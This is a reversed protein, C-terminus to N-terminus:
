FLGGDQMVKFFDDLDVEGHDKTSAFTLMENLEDDDVDICLDESARKLNEFDITGGEDDDYIWFAKRLEEKTDRCSIQAAMLATFEEMDISGSGDKDAREMLEKLRTKDLHIGLAKMADKLEAIDISLSEDKDFM